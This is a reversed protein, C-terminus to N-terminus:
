LILRQRNALSHAWHSKSHELANYHLPVDCHMDHNKAWLRKQSHCSCQGRSPGALYDLILWQVLWSAFKGMACHVSFVCNRMRMYALGPNTYIYIYICIYIYISIDILFIYIYIYMYMNIVHTNM